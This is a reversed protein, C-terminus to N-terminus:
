FRPLRVRRREHEIESVECREKGKASLTRGLTQFCTTKGSQRPAQLIFYLKPDIIPRVELLRLVMPLM